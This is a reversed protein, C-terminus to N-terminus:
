LGLFLKCGILIRWLGTICTTSIQGNNCFNAEDSFLIRSLFIPDENIMHLMINCFNMRNIFDPEKLNQHLYIHFKNEHIRLISRRSLECERELQKISIMPNLQIAALINM